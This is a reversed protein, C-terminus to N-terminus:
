IQMRPVRLQHFIGGGHIHCRSFTETVPKVPPAHCKSGNLRFREDALSKPLFQGIQRQDSAFAARVIGVQRDPKFQSQTTKKQEQSGNKLKDAGTKEEVSIRSKLGLSCQDQRQSKRKTEITEAQGSEIPFLQWGNRQRESQRDNAHALSIIQLHCYIFHARQRATWERQMRLRMSQGRSFNM